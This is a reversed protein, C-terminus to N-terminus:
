EVFDDIVEDVGKDIKADADEDLDEWDDEEDIDAIKIKVDGVVEIGLENDITYQIGGDKIEAKSCTPQKISRVIIEEGTIDQDERTKIRVNENYTVNDKIVETQSDNDFSYWINVDYSGQVGITDGNKVGHFNHNIVWCGLVTTPNNSVSISKTNTLTKKGKGIVAKTVIEKYNAM